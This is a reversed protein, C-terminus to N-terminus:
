LCCLFPFYPQVCCLGGQAPEKDVRGAGRGNMPQEQTIDSHPHALAVLGRKHGWMKPSQPLRLFLLLGQVSNCGARTWGPQSNFVSKSCSHRGSVERAGSANHNYKEFSQM